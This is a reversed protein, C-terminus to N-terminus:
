GTGEGHRITTPVRRSIRSVTKNSGRQVDNDSGQIGLVRKVEDAVIGTGALWSVNLKPNENIGAAVLRLVRHYDRLGNRLKEIDPCDDFWQRPAPILAARERPTMLQQEAIEDSLPKFKKQSARKVRQTAKDM